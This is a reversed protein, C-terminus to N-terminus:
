EAPAGVAPAAARPGAPARERDSRSTAAGSLSRQALGTLAAGALPALWFLWLQELAWGGAVLAPGTSRAPNVSVNTVPIGVLHVVVLALGIALPALQAPAGPRTSGLVVTMLGASLVLETLLAAGLGYGDPSHAGYGNAAFGGDTGGGLRGSAVLFLIGSAIVAGLLQAAVYPLVIKSPVRGAIALGITVAPNFHAGSVHGVAYGMTLFALGFALSVGVNGIGLHLVGVDLLASGCGAFVLWFTGITEALVKEYITRDDM